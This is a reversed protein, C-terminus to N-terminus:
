YKEEWESKVKALGSKLYQSVAQQSIGLLCAIDRQSLGEEAETEGSYLRRELDLLADLRANLSVLEEADNM